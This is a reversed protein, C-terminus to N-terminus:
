LPTSTKMAMTQTLTRDVSRPSCRVNLEPSVSSDMSNLGLSDLLSRLSKVIYRPIGASSRQRERNQTVSNHSRMLSVPQEKARLFKSVDYERQRM